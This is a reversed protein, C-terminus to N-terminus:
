GTLSTTLRVTISGMVLYTLTRQGSQTITEKERISLPKHRGVLRQYEESQERTLSPHHTVSHKKIASLDPFLRQVHEMWRKEDLEGLGNQLQQLGSSNEGRVSVLSVGM